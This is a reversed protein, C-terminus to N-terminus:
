QLERGILAEIQARAVRADLRAQILAARASNLTNQSTLLQLLTSAGLAYREQQVRLDEEAAAVSARQIMIRTEATRLAGLQTIINQRALFTADRLAAEANDEAVKATVVQQERTYQNWIPLSVSFGMRYNSSMPGSGWDFTADTNQRSYSGNMSLTPFYGARATRVGMRATTVQAEAQRVAPGRLALRILEASDAQLPAPDMTDAVAATVVFPTAVLRTLAINANNLQNQANLVALRANGVQIVSQLSDSITAAGASVRATAVAFQQEAQALQTRAAVDAERASLIAYYQQKVQLAIQFDQAVGGAEAADISAMGSRLEAIRRGNFLDLNANLGQNFNWPNGSFPVLNGQFFTEGGQRSSGLSGNLSPLFQAITRRLQASSSRLQGRAQVAAPANRRALAVAEDVTIPRPADQAVALTPALLALALTRMNM